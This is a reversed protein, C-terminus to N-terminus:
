ADDDIADPLCAVENQQDVIPLFVADLDANRGSRRNRLHIGSSGRKQATNFGEACHPAQRHSADEAAARVATYALACHEDLFRTLTRSSIDTSCLARLM